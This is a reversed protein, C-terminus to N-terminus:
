VCLMMSPVSQRRLSRILSVILWFTFWSPYILMFTNNQGSGSNCKQTGNQQRWPHFHNGGQHEQVGPNGVHSGKHHRLLDGEGFWSLRAEGTDVRLLPARHPRRDRHRDVASFVTTSLLKYECPLWITMIHNILTTFSTSIAADHSFGREGRDRAGRGLARGAAREAASPPQSRRWLGVPLHGFKCWQKQGLLSILTLM